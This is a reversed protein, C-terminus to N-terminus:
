HLATGEVGSFVSLVGLECDESERAVCENVEHCSEGLALDSTFDEIGLKHLLKVCFM